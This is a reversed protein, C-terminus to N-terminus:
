RPEAPSEGLPAVHLNVARRVGCQPCELIDNGKDSQQETPMLRVGDEHEDSYCIVDADYQVPGSVGMTTGNM